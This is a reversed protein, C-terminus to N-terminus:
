EPKTPTPAAPLPQWHTIDASNVKVVPFEDPYFAGGAVEALWVLGSESVVMVTTDDAPMRESCDIWGDPIVPSNGAQLMAARCANWGIGYLHNKTIGDKVAINVGGTQVLIEYQGPVAPAPPATFLPTVTFGKFAWDAAVEKNLTTMRNCRVKSEAQWAVPVSQAERVALLEVSITKLIAVDAHGLTYGAKLDAVGAIAETTLTSKTM